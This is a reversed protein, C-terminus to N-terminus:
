VPKKSTEKPQTWEKKMFHDLEIFISTECSYAISRGIKKKKKKM